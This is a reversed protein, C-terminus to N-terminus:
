RFTRGEYPGFFLHSPFNEEDKVWGQPAIDFSLFICDNQWTAMSNRRNEALLHQEIEQHTSTCIMANPACFTDKNGESSPHQLGNV